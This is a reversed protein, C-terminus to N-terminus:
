CRENPFRPLKRAEVGARIREAVVEATEINTGRLVVLFEDGQKWRGSPDRDFSQDKISSAVKMIVQDGIDYGYSDNFHKLGDVDIFLISLSQKARKTEMVHYKLAAEIGRRNLLKTAPDTLAEVVATDYLTANRVAIAAIKSLETLFFQDSQTFGETKTSNHICIVGLIEGKIEMPVALISLLQPEGPRFPLYRPDHSCDNILITEGNQAVIGAVGEGLRFETYQVFGSHLGRKRHLRVKTEGETMLFMSGTEALKQEDIVEVLILDLLRDTDDVVENAALSFAFLKQYLKGLDLQTRLDKIAKAISEAASGKRRVM